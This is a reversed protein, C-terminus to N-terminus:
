SKVFKGPRPNCFGLMNPSDALSYLGFYGAPTSRIVQPMFGLSPRVKLFSRLGVEYLGNLKGVDSSSIVKLRNGSRLCWGLLDLYNQTVLIYYLRDHWVGIPPMSSRNTVPRNAWNNCVSVGDLWGFVNVTVSRSIKTVSKSVESKFCWSHVYLRRVIKDLYPPMCTM